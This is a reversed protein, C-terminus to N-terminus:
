NKRNSNSFPVPPSESTDNTASTRKRNNPRKPVTEDALRNLGDASSMSPVEEGQSELELSPEELQSGDPLVIENFRKVFTNASYCSKFQQSFENETFDFFSM